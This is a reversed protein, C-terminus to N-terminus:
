RDTTCESIPCPCNRGNPRRWCSPLDMDGRWIGRRAARAQEELGVYDLSFRRYALAHGERVMTAAIDQGAITCRAVVRAYSVDLQVCTVPRDLIMRELFIAADEGCPLWRRRVLCEQNGEPADIGHLRVQVSRGRADTLGFSDGDAVYTATGSFTPPAVSQAAAPAIVCLAASV